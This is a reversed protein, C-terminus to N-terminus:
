RRALAEIELKLMCKNCEVSMSRSGRRGRKEEGKKEEIEENVMRGGREQRLLERMREWWNEGEERGM